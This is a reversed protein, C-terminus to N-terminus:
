GPVVAPEAQAPAPVDLGARRAERLAEAVPVRHFPVVAHLIFWYHCASGAMVFLHFVEHSGLVGPYFDPWHLGNLVAGATYILGGVWLPRIRAPSLHRTLEFWTACGVWGMLVYLVTLVSIPLPMALRLIIGGAAMAWIGALLGIRWRGRLVVLAIPTVTGAILLYIGIHDMTNFPRALSPPVSHFLFSGAYCFTLTFGFILVSTRKLASGRTLHWLVWTAPISLVMWAFHTWASVPERVVLWNM